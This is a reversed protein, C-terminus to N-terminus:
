HAKQAHTFWPLEISDYFRQERIGGEKERRRRRRKKLRIFDVLSIPRITLTMGGDAVM